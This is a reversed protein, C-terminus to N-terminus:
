VCTTSCILNHQYWFNSPTGYDIANTTSRCLSIKPTNEDALHGIVKESASLFDSKCSLAPLGLMPNMRSSSAGLM